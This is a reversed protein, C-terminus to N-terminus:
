RDFALLVREEASHHIGSFIEGALTRVMARSPRAKYFPAAM